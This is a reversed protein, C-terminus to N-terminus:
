VAWGLSTGLTQIANYLNSQNISGSGYGIVAHRKSSFTEPMGGNRCLSYIEHSLLPQSAASQTVLLSGNKYSNVTSNNRQALFLGLSNTNSSFSLSAASINNAQYFFSPHNIICSTITTGNYVGYENAIETINSLSYVFISNSNQTYKVLQDEQVNHKLYASSGDGQYGSGPIFNPNIATIAASSPNVFSTRAAVGDSLGHIFLRDLETIESDLDTELQTLHTLEDVTLSGGRSVVVSRYAMTYPGYKTGIM